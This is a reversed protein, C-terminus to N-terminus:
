ISREELHIPNLELPRMNGQFKGNPDCPLPLFTRETLFNGLKTLINAFSFLLQVTTTIIPLFQPYFGMKGQGGNTIAGCLLQSLINLYFNPNGSHYTWKGSNLKLQECIKTM